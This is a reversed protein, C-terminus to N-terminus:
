PTASLSSPGLFRLIENCQTWLFFYFDSISYRQGIGSDKLKELIDSSRDNLNTRFSQAAGGGEQWQSLYSDFDVGVVRVNNDDSLEGM